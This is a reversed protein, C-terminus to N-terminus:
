LPLAFFDEALDVLLFRTSLGSARFRMASACRLRQAAWFALDFYFPLNEM